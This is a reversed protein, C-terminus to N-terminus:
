HFTHTAYGNASREVFQRLLTVKLRRDKLIDTKNLIM